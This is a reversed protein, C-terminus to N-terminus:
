EKLTKIKRFSLYLILVVFAIVDKWEGRLKWIGVNEILGLFFAGVVPGLFNNAGGIISAIIGKFLFGLGISPEMGADLSILIGALGVISSAIFVVIGTYKETDIGIVKATEADDGIAKVIKGFLTLKFLATLILIAIVDILLILVQTNSILGGFISYTVSITDISLLNWSQNSFIIVIIAQIIMMVGLSAIFLVMSSAGKKRLPLFTTKEIIFGGCGALVMGVLGSIWLNALSNQTLYLAVYSGIMLVGGHALNSFKTLKFILNYSLAILTYISGAVIGNILLQPLISNM